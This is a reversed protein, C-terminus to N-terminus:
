EISDRYQLYTEIGDAKDEKQKLGLIIKIKNLFDSFKACRKKKVVVPKHYSCIENKNKIVYEAWKNRSAEIETSVIQKDAENKSLESQLDFNNM